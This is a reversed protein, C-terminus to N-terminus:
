RRTMDSESAAVHEAHWQRLPEVALAALPLAAAVSGVGYAGEADLLNLVGLTVGDDVVPVNIVAGCGLSAILEHDSFVAAVAAPDAGLYPQQEVVVQGIWPAQRSFVKDGGSPYEVPHSTHVRHLAGRRDDWALVTFLRVGVKQRVAAEVAAFDATM